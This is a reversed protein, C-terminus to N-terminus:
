YFTVKANYETHDDDGVVNKYYNVTFYIPKDKKVKDAIKKDLKDISQFDYVHFTYGPKLNMKKAQESTIYTERYVPTLYADFQTRIDDGTQIEYGFDNVVLTEQQLSSM